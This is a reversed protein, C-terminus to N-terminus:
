LSLRLGPTFRPHTPPLPPLAYLRRNGGFAEPSSVPAPGAGPNESGQCMKVREAQVNLDVLIQQLSWVYVMQNNLMAM